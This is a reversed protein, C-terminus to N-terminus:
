KQLNIASTMLGLSVWFYPLAFSDVSFGEALLAVITFLGALTLTSIIKKNNKLFNVGTLVLTFLWSVFVSFGVIGTEALLRVWLNKLNLLVHM